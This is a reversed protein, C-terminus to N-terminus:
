FGGRRNNDEFSQGISPRCILEEINKTIVEKGSVPLVIRARSFRPQVDFVELEGVNTEANGLEMGSYPDFVAEGRRFVTLRQGRSLVTEGANLMVAPWREGQVVSIVRIPWLTTVIKAMVDESLRDLLEGIAGENESRTGFGLFGAERAETVISSIVQDSIIIEGTENDVLRLALTIKMELNRRGGAPGFGTQQRNTEFRLITGFASYQAGQLRGRQAVTSRDFSGDEEFQMQMEIEERRAGGLDEIVRFRQSAHAKTLMMERLIPSERDLATSDQDDRGGDRRAQRREDERRREQDAVDGTVAGVAAGAIWDQPRGGALLGGAIAGLTAGSADGAGSDGHRNATQSLDFENSYLFRGIHLTPMDGSRPIRSRSQAPNAGRGAVAAGTSGGQAVQRSAQKRVVMLPEVDMTSSTINAFVGAAGRRQIVADGIREEDQLMVSPNRPDPFEDILYIGVKDGVHLVGDDDAVIIQGDPRVRLIVNSTDEEVGDAPAVAALAAPSSGLGLEGSIAENLERATREALARIAQTDSPFFDEIATRVSTLETGRASHVVRAAALGAYEERLRGQRVGTKRFEGVSVTIIYDAAADQGSRIRERPTSRRQSFSREEDLLDAEGRDVVDVFGGDSLFNRLLMAFTDVESVMKPSVGSAPSAEIRVTPRRSPQSTDAGSQTTSQPPPSFRAERGIMGVAPTRQATKIRARSFRDLVETIEIQGVREENRALVLGTAPDIIPEGQSFLDLVEGEEVYGAGYNLTLTNGSVAAVTVPYINLIISRSVDGAAERITERLTGFYETVTDGSWTLVGTTADMINVDLTVEFRAGREVIDSVRGYVVYQAGVLQGIQQANAAVLGAAGLGQENFAEQLRSREVMSFRRSNVMRQQLVGSFADFDNQWTPNAAYEFEGIAMTPLRAATQAQAKLALGVLILLLCVLKRM